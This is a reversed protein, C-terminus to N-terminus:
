HFFNLQYYENQLISNENTSLTKLHDYLCDILRQHDINISSDSPLIALLANPKKEPPEAFYWVKRNNLRKKLKEIHKLKMQGDEDIEDHPVDYNIVM